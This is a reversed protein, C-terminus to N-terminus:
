LTVNVSYMIVKTTAGGYRFNPKPHVMSISIVVYIM